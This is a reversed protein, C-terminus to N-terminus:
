KTKQEAQKELGEVGKQMGEYMQREKSTGEQIAKQAEQAREESSKQDGGCGTLGLVAVLVLWRRSKM